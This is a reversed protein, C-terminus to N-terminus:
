PADSRGCSIRVEDNWHSEDGPEPDQKTVQGVKGTPYQPYLGADSLQDEADHCDKGVLDPVAVAPAAGIVAIVVTDGQRVPEGPSPRTSSVSRDDGVVGFKLKWGLRNSRLEDRADEFDWGVMNPMTDQDPPPKPTTKTPRPSSSHSTKATTPVKGGPTMTGAPGGETAEAVPTSTGDDQADAILWGGIAGVTSLVLTGVIAGAVLAARSPGEPQGVPPTDWGTNEDTM